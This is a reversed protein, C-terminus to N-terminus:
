TAEGMLMRQTKPGRQGTYQGPIHLKQAVAPEFGVPQFTSRKKPVPQMREPHLKCYVKSFYFVSCLLSHVFGYQAVEHLAKTAAAIAAAHSLGEKSTFHRVYAALFPAPETESFEPVNMLWGGPILLKISRGRWNRCLDPAPLQIMRAKTAPVKPM